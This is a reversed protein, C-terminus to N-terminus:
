YNQWQQFHCCLGYFCCVLERCKEHTGMDISSIKSLQTGAKLSYPRLVQVLSFEGAPIFVKCWHKSTPPLLPGTVAVSWELLCDAPFDVWAERVSIHLASSFRPKWGAHERSQHNLTSFYKGNREFDFDFQLDPLTSALLSWTTAAETVKHCGM